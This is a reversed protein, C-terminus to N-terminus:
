SRPSQRRSPRRRTWGRRVEGPLWWAAAPPPPAPLVFAPALGHRRTPVAAPWAALRCPRAWLRWPAWAPPPFFTSESRTSWALGRAPPLLAANVFLPAPTYFAPQLGLPTPTPYWCFAALPLWSPSTFIPISPSDDLPFRCAFRTADDCGGGGCLTPQVAPEECPGSEGRCPLWDRSAM